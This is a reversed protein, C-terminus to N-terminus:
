EGSLVLVNNSYATARIRFGASKAQTIAYDAAQLFDSREVEADGHIAIHPVNKAILKWGSESAWRSLMNEVTGDVQRVLWPGAHTRIGAVSPQVGGRAAEIERAAQSPSLHGAKLRAVVADLQSSALPRQASSPSGLSASQSTGSSTRSVVSAGVVVGKTAGEIVQSTTKIAIVSRPIGAATLANLVALARADALGERYTMDDRGIVEIRNANRMSSAMSRVMKIGSPGLKSVGVAFPISVDPSVVEPSTWVTRDGKIPTAYSNVELGVKPPSDTMDRPLGQIDASAALLRDMALPAATRIASSQSDQVVPPRGTGLYAVRGVGHGLRLMYGSAVAPVRIYPGEQEPVLLSPGSSALAFIAPIAEGARFQFYTSRGDDFVQAPRVRQDGTVHYSFDYAGLRDPSSGQVTASALVAFIALPITSKLKFKM